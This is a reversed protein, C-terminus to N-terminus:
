TTKTLTQNSKLLTLTFRLLWFLWIRRNISWEALSKGDSISSSYLTTKSFNSELSSTQFWHRACENWRVTTCAICTYTHLDFRWASSSLMRGCRVAVCGLLTPSPPPKRTWGGNGFMPSYALASNWDRTQRFVVGVSVRPSVRAVVQSSSATSKMPGFLKRNGHWQHRENLAYIQKEENNNNNMNKDNKCKRSYNLNLEWFISQTGHHIELHFVKQQVVYTPRSKGVILGSISKYTGLNWMM